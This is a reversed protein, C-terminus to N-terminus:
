APGEVNSVKMTAYYLARIWFLLGAVFAGVIVSCYILKVYSWSHKDKSGIYKNQSPSPRSLLGMFAVFLM